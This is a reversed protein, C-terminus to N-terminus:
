CQNLVIKSYRFVVCGLMELTVVGTTVEQSLM